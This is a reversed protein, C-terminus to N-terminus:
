AKWVKLSEITFATTSNLYFGNFTLRLYAASRPIDKVTRLGGVVSASGAGWSATGETLTSIVAKSDTLLQKTIPISGEATNSATLLFSLQRCDHIPIDINLYSTTGSSGVGTYKLKGGTISATTVASNSLSFDFYASTTLLLEADCSFYAMLKSADSAFFIFGKEFKKNSILGSSVNNGDHIITLNDVKLQYDQYQEVLYWVTSTNSVIAWMGSITVSANSGTITILSATRGTNEIHGSLILHGAVITAIGTCYDFSGDQWYIKGNSNNVYFAIGGSQWTCGYFSMREYTDPQTTMYLLYQCNSFQCSTWVWGWGGAGHTFIKNFGRFVCSNINHLCAGNNSSTADGRVAYFLDLTNGSTLFAVGQYLAGANGIFAALNNNNTVVIGQSNTFTGAPDFYLCGGGLAIVRVKSGDHTLTKTIRYLRSLVVFQPVFGGSPSALSRSAAKNLAAQVANSDDAVGDGIAGNQEPTVYLISQQLNGGQPLGIKSAGSPQALVVLTSQEGADNIIQQVQDRVNEAAVESNKAANESSKANAESTKAANESTAAATASSEAAESDAKIQNALNQLSEFDFDKFFEVADAIVTEQSQYYRLTEAVDQALGDVTLSDSLLIAYDTSAVVAGNTTIAKIETDSVVKNVVAIQIPSSLFMITAGPRILSLSSQWKTGTGTVTGDAAMAARGERYLAM